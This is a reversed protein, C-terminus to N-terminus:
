DDSADQSSAKRTAKGSGQTPRKILADLKDLDGEPDAEHEKIFEELSEQRAKKLDVAMVDCGQQHFIEDIISNVRDGISLETDQLKDCAAYCANIADHLAENFALAQIRSDIFREFVRGDQADPFKAKEAQRRTDDHVATDIRERVGSPDFGGILPADNMFSRIASEVSAIQDSQQMMVPETLRPADRDLSKVEAERIALEKTVYAAPPVADRFRKQIRSAVIQLRLADLVIEIDKDDAIRQFSAQRVEKRFVHTFAIWIVGGIKDAGFLYIASAAGGILCLLLIEGDGLVPAWANVADRM